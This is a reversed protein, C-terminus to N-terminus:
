VQIEKRESSSPIRLEERYKSITRRSITIGKELNFYDAIKQDSFPKFKNEQNVFSQLLTKVKTQSISNGDTTELKSTFLTRLDFSGFPTQIVKNMTARSVTSEHMDIAEAVEKLILPKLSLFGNKFFNEQRDMLVTMIKIITNRRQEISSILWQYTKNHDNIYKSVGDGAQLYKSYGSSKQITPLHGDNLHFSLEDNKLEVIIDPTVYETSFNSIFSCPRPNLTQIFEYLKKVEAMTINMQSAIENWKRKGILELHETVLCKALGNEPYNYVIQLLLCEKLNRAGIGVPGVKQLLHIGKEMEDEKGSFYNDHFPLYGNDDLNDILYKLLKLTQKDSYTFKAQEFLEDRMNRETCQIVDIPMESTGYSVSRHNVREEYLNDKDKEKLEILPNDLEQERIYQELEYTSYQLLQIAQRLEVTMLLNQQQKQRLILEM